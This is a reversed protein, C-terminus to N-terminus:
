VNGTGTSSDIYEGTVPYYYTIPLWTPNNNDKSIHGAFYAGDMKRVM